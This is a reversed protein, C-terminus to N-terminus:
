ANACEKACAACADACTHCVEMKDHKRCETECELCADRAIKALAKTHKSKQASAQAVADCLVLMERVAAACGVMAKSGSSLSEMCHDLCLRGRKVCETTTDLLTPTEAALANAPNLATAAALLTSQALFHRRDM